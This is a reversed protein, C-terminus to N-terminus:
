FDERRMLGRRLTRTTHWAWRLPLGVPTTRLQRWAPSGALRDKLRDRLRPRTFQLVAVPEGLFEPMTTDSAVAAAAARYTDRHSPRCFYTKNAGIAFPVLNPGRVFYRQVGDAVGPWQENFADDLVIIGGEALAADAVALDHATIEATHGGDVSIFRLPGEALRVLDAGALDMSNGQHLVLRADDAHRSLHRRFKALDGSGSVDVNLHQDEFLDIAVAKESACGLLYLLVFLKGHHVGIEAIGGRVGLARQRESLATITLAAETRLWGEVFFKGHRIYRAVRSDM